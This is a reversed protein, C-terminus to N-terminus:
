QSILACHQVAAVTASQEMLEGAGGDFAENTDAVFSRKGRAKHIISHEAFKFIEDRNSMPVFKNKM